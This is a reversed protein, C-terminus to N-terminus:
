QLCSPWHRHCGYM